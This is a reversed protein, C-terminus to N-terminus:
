RDAQEDAESEYFPLIFTKGKNIFEFHLDIRKLFDEIRKDKLEGEKISGYSKKMIVAAVDGLYIIEPESLEDVKDLVLLCKKTGDLAIIKNGSQLQCSFSLDFRTGLESVKRYNSKTFATQVNKM